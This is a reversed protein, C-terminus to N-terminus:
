GSSQFGEKVKVIINISQQAIVADSTNDKEIKVSTIIPFIERFIVEVVVDSSVNELVITQSPTFSEGNITISYIDYYQEPSFTLTLNEGEIIETSSSSVTGKGIISTTVKYIPKWYSYLVLDDTPFQSESTYTVGSGDPQTNWGSFYYGEREKPMPINWSDTNVRQSAELTSSMYDYGYPYIRFNSFNVVKGTGVVDCRLSIYNKTPTFEFSNQTNYSFDSGSWSGNSDTNFIFFEKESASTDCQFIYKSNVVVPIVPSQNTYADDVTATGTFGIDTLNSIKIGNGAKIGAEAWKTFNFLNDYTVYVIKKFIATYTANGNVTITRTTETSGDSWQVFRYGVAPTASITTTDGKLFETGGGSVTGGGSAKVSITYTNLTYNILIYMNSIIVNGVSSKIDFDANLYSNNGSIKLASVNYDATKTTATTANDTSSSYAIRIWKYSSGTGEKRYYVQSISSSNSEKFDFYLKVSNILKIDKKALNDSSESFRFQVTGTGSGLSSFSATGYNVLDSLKDAGATRKYVPYKVSGM